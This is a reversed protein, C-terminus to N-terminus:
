GPPQDLRRGRVRRGHQGPLFSILTAGAPLMLPRLERVGVRRTRQIERRKALTGPLRRAADRWARFQAGLTGRRLALWLAHVQELAVLWGYRVFAGAPFNKVVLAIQNRRNLYVELDSTRRTTAGGVHYAVSTPVYRCGWGRLRARFGWDVDELYAFFDEDFVGVDEFVTRRYLAAGACPSFVERDGDYAGVDPEGQGRRNANGSWTLLDGTGDLVDRREFDLLKSTASGAEPHRDLEAVLESLWRPELEMDNNLLAILESQTQAIGRNVAPAFGVNEPLAVVDVEPWRERLYDVSGDTSGNDVVLVGADDFEQSALSPMLVELLERGNWNPVIVTVKPAALPPCTLAQGPPHRAAPPAHVSRSPAPV